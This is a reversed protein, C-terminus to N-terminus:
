SDLYERVTKIACYKGCMTCVDEEAPPSKERYARAKKPDIALKLQTEWDLKKRALSMKRDREM